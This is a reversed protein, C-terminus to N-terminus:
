QVIYNYNCIQGQIFQEVRSIHDDFPHPRYKKLTKIYNKKCCQLLYSIDWKHFTERTISKLKLQCATETLFGENVTRSPRGTSHTKYWHLKKSKVLYLIVIKQVPNYCQRAGKSQSPLQLSRQRSAETYMKAWENEDVHPFEKLIMNLDTSLKAKIETYANLNVQKSETKKPQMLNTFADPKKNHIHLKQFKQLQLKQQLKELKLKEVQLKLRILEPDSQSQNIPQPPPNTQPPNSPQPPPPTEKNAEVSQSALKSQSAEVSQLFSSLDTAMRDCDNDFGKYMEDKSYRQEM